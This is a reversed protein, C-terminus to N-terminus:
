RSDSPCIMRSKSPLLQRTDPQNRCDRSERKKRRHKSYSLELALTSADLSGQDACKISFEGWWAARGNVFEKAAQAYLGGEGDALQHHLVQLKAEKRVTRSLFIKQDDLQIAGGSSEGGKM